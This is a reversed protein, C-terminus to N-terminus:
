TSVPFKLAVSAEGSAVPVTLTAEAPQLRGESPRLYDRVFVPIARLVAELWLIDQQGPRGVHGSRSMTIPIPYAEDGAVEWGCAEIMDLDAFPIAMIEDYLLSTAKIRGFAMEPIPLGYLLQLDAWSDYVALGFTEGGHGMVVAYRPEATPPYRIALPQADTLWRWPAERYFFAAASFLSAVQEATVGPAELLGPLPERGTLHRELERVVEDLEAIVRQECHIDLISLTPSLAEVLTGEDFYIRQPRRPPGAGSLPAQMGRILADLVQEPSPETESIEHFIILPGTCSVCLIHYPRYPARGPPAIWAPMRRRAVEWTEDTARLRRLAALQDRMASM